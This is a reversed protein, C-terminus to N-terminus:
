LSMQKRLEDSTWSKGDFLLEFIFKTVAAGTIPRSHTAGFRWCEGAPTATFGLELGGIENTVLSYSSKGGFRFDDNDYFIKLDITEAKTDRDLPQNKRVEFRSEYGLSIYSNTFSNFTISAKTNTVNQYPYYHLETNLSYHGLSMRTISTLDSLPQNDEKFDYSQYLDWFLTTTYSTSNNEGKIRKTLNNTLGLRIKRRDFLQDRYDFQLSDDDSISLSNELFDEDADSFFSHADKQIWPTQTYTISPVMEHRYALKDSTNFVKSFRTQISIEAELKHQGATNKESAANPNTKLYDLTTNPVGFQYLNSQLSLKPLIDFYKYRKIPYFIQPNMILRHGVRIKDQGADYSETAFSGDDINDFAQDPRTFNSFSSNFYYYFNSDKIKQLNSTYQIEPFRHVADSNTNLPDEKLLNRNAVVEIYNTSHESNNTLSIRNELSPYAAYPLETPFDFPYRSDSM